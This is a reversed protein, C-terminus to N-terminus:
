SIVELADFGKEAMIHQFRRENLAIEWDTYGRPILPKLYDGDTLRSGAVTPCQGWEDTEPKDNSM